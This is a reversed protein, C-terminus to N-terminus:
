TAAEGLFIFFRALNDVKIGGGKELTKEGNQAERSLDVDNAPTGKTAGAEQEGNQDPDGLNDLRLTPIIYIVLNRKIYIRSGLFCAQLKHQEGSM